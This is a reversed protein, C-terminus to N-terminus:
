TPFLKLVWNVIAYAVFAVVLGVVAYMITNKAKTIKSSDGASTAYFIGGVIIMVTSLAGVLFLLTNVLVGILNNADEEKNDCVKSDPDDACVEALPDYAFTTTAPVLAFAGMATVMFAAILLKIRKM